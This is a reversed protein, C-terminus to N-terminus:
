YYYYSSEAAISSGLGLLILLVYGIVAIIILTLVVACLALAVCSIILGVTAFVNKLGVAKSKKMGIISLILGTVACALSVIMGIIGIWVTYPCCCCAFPLVSVIAVIMGAIGLGKGPNKAPKDSLLEGVLAEDTSEDVASNIVASGCTECFVANKELEAGCINCKM